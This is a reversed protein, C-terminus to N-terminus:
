KDTNDLLFELPIHLRRSWAIESHEDGTFEKTMWSKGSIYHHKVMMSDILEQYPKYLSDLTATGHDFYIKHDGPDPLNYDLYQRFINAVDFNENEQPVIVPWHTSLCGAGGFIKPYECIAYLSILGGMSSGMIFTNAQDSKTAYAKDIYPKLEHVLFMLYEDALTEGALFDSLLHSQIDLPIEAMVAEPFYEGARRSGNNEIGVIIVDRIKEEKSLRTLTEDVQWEKNNWTKTSDFLMQSDHMYIVAYNKSSDYDSPLWIDVGRPSVINSPFSDIHIISGNGSSLPGNDRSTCAVLILSILFTYVVSQM